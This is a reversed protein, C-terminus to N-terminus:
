SFGIYSEPVLGEKWVGNSCVRVKSWGDDQADVLQVDDGTNASIEQSNPAAQFDYLMKGNKKQPAVPAPASVTEAEGTPSTVDMKNATPSTLSATTVIPVITTPGASYSVPSPLVDGAQISKGRLSEPLEPEKAKDIGAVYVQLRHKRLGLNDIRTALSQKQFTLENLQKPDASSKTSVVALLSEVASLKATADTIEKDFSKIRTVALSRGKKPPATLITDDDDVDLLSETGSRSHATSAVGGVVAAAGGLAAAVKLSGPKKFNADRASAREEFGFDAPPYEDDIRLCAIAFQTDSDANVNGFVTSMEELGEIYMPILSSYFEYYKQLATRTARIRFNEDDTQIDTLVQPLFELFHTQKKANTEVIIKQYAEMADSAALAKKDADAKATDLDKQATNKNASVKALYAKATEMNKKEAEFKERLKEMANVQTQLEATGKRIKDFKEKFKADNEKSQYKLTKRLETNIKDSIGFHVTAVSDAEVLMQQWAKGMSSELVTKVAVGGRGMKKTIEDKCPKVLKQLSHAYEAEIEARRKMFENISM